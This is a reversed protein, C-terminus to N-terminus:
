SSGITREHTDINIKYTVGKFYTSRYVKANEFDKDGSGIYKLYRICEKYEYVNEFKTNVSKIIEQASVSM